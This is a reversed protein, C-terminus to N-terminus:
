YGSALRTRPRATRSIRSTLTFKAAHGFSGGQGLYCNAGVTFEHVTGGATDSDLRLLDYRAFAEWNPTVMQAAQVVGGLDCWYDTGDRFDYYNSLLAGYFGIGRPTEWQLDATSYVVDLGAAMTVLM